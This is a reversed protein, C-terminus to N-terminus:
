ILAMSLELVFSGKRQGLAKLNYKRSDRNGLSSPECKVKESVKGLDTLM